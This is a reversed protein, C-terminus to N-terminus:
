SNKGGKETSGREIRGGIRGATSITSRNVEYNGEDISDPTGEGSDYSDEDSSVRGESIKQKNTGREQSCGKTAKARGKQGTEGVKNGPGERGKRKTYRRKKVKVVKGSSAGGTGGNREEKGTDTESIHSTDEM